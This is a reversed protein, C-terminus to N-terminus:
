GNTTCNADGEIADMVDQACKFYGNWCGKIVEGCPLSQVDPFEMRLYRATVEENSLNDYPEHDSMIFYIASGLAFLDSNPDPPTTPPDRVLWFRTSEMAQGDLDGFLSGAFDCPQLNLHEDLLLNSSHLDSHFVNKDHIFAVVEAVQKAWKRQLYEPSPDHGAIYRRVDGNVALQFQLCYEHKGLYKVIRDHPCLESLILHEVDLCKGARKDDRDWVYKLVSGDGLSVLKATSGGWNFDSASVGSPSWPDILKIMNISNSPDVHYKGDM